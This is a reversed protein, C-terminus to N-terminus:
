TAAKPQVAVDPPRAPLARARARPRRRAARVAALLGGAATMGGGAWILGVLPNVALRVTAGSSDPAVAILTVYVDRLLGSHIDPVAVATDRAVHYRLAPTFDDDARQAGVPRLRAAVAM